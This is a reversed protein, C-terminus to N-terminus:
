DLNSALALVCNSKDVLVSDIINRSHIRFPVSVILTHAHSAYWEGCNNEVRKVYTLNLSM